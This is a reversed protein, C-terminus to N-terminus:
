AVLLVGRTKHLQLDTTVILGDVGHSEVLALGDERKNFWRFARDLAEAAEDGCSTVEITVLTGM